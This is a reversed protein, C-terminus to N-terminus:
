QRYAQNGIIQQLSQQQQIAISQLAQTKQEQTMTANGAIEKRQAEIAKHLEYIPRVGRASMGYQSAMVQAQRFIPDRMQQYVQYHEPTLTERVARERQANYQEKQRASLADMGGYDLQIRHELPDIVRFIKRFEEATIDLGMMDERLKKANYSSRLLFEELQEPTLIKALETRTFDRMKAMETSEEAAAAAQINNVIAVNGAAAGNRKELSRECVEQVANWTETPLAGLVPGTLPVLGMNIPTIKVTDEWNQGLLKDLLERRQEDFSSNFGNNIPFFGFYRDARWWPMDTKIAYELRRKDILENVDSVVITRVQKEPCGALRLRTVYNTYIDNTVDQWGFQRGAPALAVMPAANSALPAVVNTASQAAAFNTTVAANARLLPNTGPQRDARLIEGGTLVPKSPRRSYGVFAAAWLVNVALILM